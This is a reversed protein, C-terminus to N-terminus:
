LVRRQNYLVIELLMRDMLIHTTFEHIQSELRSFAKRVVTTLVETEEETAKEPIPLAVDLRFTRCAVNEYYEKLRGCIENEMESSAGCAVLQNRIEEEIASWTRSLKDPFKFVEAM